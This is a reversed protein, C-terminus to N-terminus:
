QSGSISRNEYGLRELAVSNLYWHLEPAEACYFQFRGHKRLFFLAKMGGSDEMGSNVPIFGSDSDTLTLLPWNPLLEHVAPCHPCVNHESFERCTLYLGATDPIISRSVFNEPLEPLLTEISKESPTVCSSLAFCALWWAAIQKKRLM